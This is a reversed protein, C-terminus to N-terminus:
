ELQSLEEWRQEQFEKQVSFTGHVIGNVELTKCTKKLGTKIYCSVEITM